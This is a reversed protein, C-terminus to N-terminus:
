VVPEAEAGNGIGFEVKGTEAAVTVVGPPVPAGDDDASVDDIGGNGTEFEVWGAGLPVAPLKLGLLGYVPVAEAAFMVLGDAALSVTKVGDPVPSVLPPIVSSVGLAELAGYGKALEVAVPPLPVAPEPVMDPNEAVLASLEVATGRGDPVGTEDPSSVPRGIGVAEEAPVVPYVAGYGNDFAVTAVPGVPVAGPALSVKAVDPVPVVVVYGLGESDPGPIMGMGLLQSEVSGPVDVYVKETGFTVNAVGVGVGATVGIVDVGTEPVPPGNGLPPKLLETGYGSVFPDDGDAGNPVTVPVLTVTLEADLPSNEVVEGGATGLAGAERVDVPVLIGPVMVTVEAGYLLVDPPKDEPIGVTGIVGGEEGMPVPPVTALVVAAGEETGDLELSNGNEPREVPGPETLETVGLTGPLTLSAGVKVELEVEPTALTGGVGPRGDDESGTESDPVGIGAM